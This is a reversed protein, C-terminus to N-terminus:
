VYIENYIAALAENFHAQDECRMKEQRGMILSITPTSSIVSQQAVSYLKEIDVLVYKIAPYINHLNKLWELANNKEQDTCYYVLVPLTCSLVESEFAMLAPSVNKILTDLKGSDVDELINDLSGSTILQLIINTSDNLDYIIQTDDSHMQRDSQTCAPLTCLLLSCIFTYRLLLTHPTYTIM